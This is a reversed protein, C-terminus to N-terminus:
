LIDSATSSTHGGGATEEMDRRGGGGGTGGDTQWVRQLQALGPTPNPTPTPSRHVHGLTCTWPYSDGHPCPHLLHTSTGTRPCLPCTDTSPVLPPPRRTLPPPAPSPSWGGGRKNTDSSLGAIPAHQQLCALPVPCRRAHRANLLSPPPPSHSTAARMVTLPMPQPNHRRTQPLSTPM